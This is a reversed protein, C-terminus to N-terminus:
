DTKKLQALMAFPNPKEVPAEFDIDAAAMKVKVPCVEHRPVLPMALLVEDEVLAALDFDRSTVLM